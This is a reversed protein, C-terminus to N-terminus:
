KCIQIHKKIFLLINLIFILFENNITNNNGKYKDQEKHFVPNKSLFSLYKSQNLPKQSASDLKVTLNLFFSLPSNFPKSNIKLIEKCM